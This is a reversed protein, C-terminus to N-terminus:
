RGKQATNYKKVEEAARAGLDPLSQIDKLIFYTAYGEWTAFEKYAIHCRANMTGDPQPMLDVKTIVVSM